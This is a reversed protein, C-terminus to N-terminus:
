STREGARTLTRAERHQSAESRAATVIQRRVALLLDREEGPRPGGAPGRRLFSPDPTGKFQRPIFPFEGTIFYHYIGEPFEPTIGFRGNCEDLDGAGAAYEYDQVFKGDYAGGPGGPRMGKKVRYSSRMKKLASNSDKADTHAWPGYIPFGDAAWGILVMKPPDGNLKDLLGTPLGHYHYAGNPQFHANNKDVGLNIGGGLAEYQWGSARDNNWWEAAGPDFVVGNVAVGFPNMGLPTPNAAEKPKAPVHFVYNQPAIRNPNGRNPFQGTSHDPLGNARIVRLDGEISISIQSANSADPSQQQAWGPFTVFILIFSLIPRIM